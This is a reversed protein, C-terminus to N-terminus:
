AVYGAEHANGLDNLIVVFEDGAMRAVTDNERLSSVFRDAVTQLTIDGAEHGYRDNVQKFGDLDIFLLGFQKKNRKANSISRALRDFFLQRNPLGTLGDHYAM